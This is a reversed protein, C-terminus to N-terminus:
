LQPLDGYWKKFGTKEKMEISALHLLANYTM